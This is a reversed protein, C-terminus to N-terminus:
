RLVPRVSVRVTDHGIVFKKLPVAVHVQAAFTEPADSDSTPRLTDYAFPPLRTALKGRFAAGNERLRFSAVISEPDFTQNPLVAVLEAANTPTPFPRDVEYGPRLEIEVERGALENPVPVEIVRSEMKGMFPDLDVRIRVPSGVDVEPELVKSGRLRYVEQTFVVKVTSEVRQITMQEWPNNLLAGMGRVLRGRQFDEPAIPSGNGAGFDRFTVTGYKAITVKSEARWTLDRRESTTVEVASGLAMATLSPAMFQDHAIEMTWSPKPVGPAGQIDVRM